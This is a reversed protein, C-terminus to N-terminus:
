SRCPSRCSGKRSGQATLVADLIDLVDLVELTHRGVYFLQHRLHPLDADEGVTKDIVAQAAVVVRRELALTDLEVLHPGVDRAVVHAGDVPVDGRACARREDLTEAFLAFQRDKEHHVNGARLAIAAHRAGLHFQRGLSGRKQRQRGDAVLVLDAEHQKRVLDHLVDRRALPPLGHHPEHAFHQGGLVLRGAAGIEGPRELEEVAHLLAPRDNKEHAVEHASDAPLGFPLLQQAHHRTPVVHHAHRHAVRRLRHQRLCPKGFQFVGLRAFKHQDIGGVLLHAFLKGGHGGGFLFMQQAVKRPRSDIM